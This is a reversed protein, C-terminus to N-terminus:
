LSFYPSRESGGRGGIGFWKKGLIRLFLAPASSFVLPGGRVNGLCYLFTDSSVRLLDRSSREM